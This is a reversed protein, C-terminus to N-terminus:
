IDTEVIISTDQQIICALKTSATNETRNCTLETRNVHFDNRQCWLNKLM